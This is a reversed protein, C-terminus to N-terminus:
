RKRFVSKALALTHGPSNLFTDFLEITVCWAADKGSGPWLRDRLLRGVPSQFSVPRLDLVLSVAM